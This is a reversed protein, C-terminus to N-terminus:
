YSYFTHIIESTQQNIESTYRLPSSIENSNIIQKETLCDNNLPRTNVPNKIKIPPISRSVSPPVTITITETKAKKKDHELVKALRKEAESLEVKKVQTHKTQRNDAALKWPTEKQQKKTPITTQPRQQKITLDNIEKNVFAVTANFTSQVTIFFNLTADSLAKIPLAYNFKTDNTKKIAPKPSPVAVIKLKLKDNNWDIKNPDVQQLRENYKQKVIQYRYSQYKVYGYIFGAGVLHLMIVATLAGKFTLGKDNFIKHKTLTSLFNKFIM